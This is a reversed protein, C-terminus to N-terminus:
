KKGMLFTVLKNLAQCYKTETKLTRIKSILNTLEPCNYDQGEFNQIFSKIGLSGIKKLIISKTQTDM